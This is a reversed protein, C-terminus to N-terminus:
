PQFLFLGPGNAAEVSVVDGGLDLDRGLAEYDIAVYPELMEPVAQELEDALGLDAVFDEAYAALSPWEGLYCGEFRELEENDTTGAYRAWAAFAEGHQAIGQALRAVSEMSEYESLALGYFGEYDHIAWEEAGPESSAALMDSVGTHLDEATQDADLWAGHLRGDNYDSLSAVYIRPGARNEREHNESPRLQESM